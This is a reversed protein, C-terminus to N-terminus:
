HLRYGHEIANLLRVQARARQLTTHKSHLRGTIRNRVTYLNKYPIKRIIYPMDRNYKELMININQQENDM